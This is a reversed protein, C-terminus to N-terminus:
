WGVVMGRVRIENEYQETFGERDTGERDRDAEHGDKREKSAGREM